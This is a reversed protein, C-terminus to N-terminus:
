DDFYDEFSAELINMMKTKDKENMKTRAREIRRIDCDANGPFISEEKFNTSNFISDISINLAKTLKELSDSDLKRKGNEIKSITSQHIGTTESIEYTSKHQEMRIKKLKEYPKM